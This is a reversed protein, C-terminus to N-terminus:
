ARKDALELQTSSPYQAMEHNRSISAMDLDLKSNNVHKQVLLETRGYKPPTTTPSPPKQITHSAINISPPDQTTDLLSHQNEDKTKELIWVRAAALKAIEREALRNVV